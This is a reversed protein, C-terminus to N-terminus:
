NQMKDLIFSVENMRKDFGMNLLKVTMLVFSILSYDIELCNKSLILYTVCQVIFTRTM